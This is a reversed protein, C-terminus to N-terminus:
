RKHWLCGSTEEATWCFGTKSTSKNIGYHMATAEVRRAIEEIPDEANFYWVRYRDLLPENKRLLDKGTAM